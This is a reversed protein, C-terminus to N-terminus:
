KSCVFLMETSFSGLFVICFIHTITVILLIIVTDGNRLSKYAASVAFNICFVSITDLVIQHFVPALIANFDNTPSKKTKSPNKATTDKDICFNFYIDHISILGHFSIVIQSMKMHISKLHRYEFAGM